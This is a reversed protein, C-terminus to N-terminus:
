KGAVQLVSDSCVPSFRVAEIDTEGNIWVYTCSVALMASCVKSQSLKWLSFTEKRKKKRMVCKVYWVQSILRLSCLLKGEARDRVQERVSTARPWFSYHAEMSFLYMSLNSKAVLCESGRKAQGTPARVSVFILSHYWVRAGNFTESSQVLVQRFGKRPSSLSNWLHKNEYLLNTYSAFPPFHSIEM